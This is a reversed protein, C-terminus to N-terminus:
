NKDCTKWHMRSISKREKVTLTTGTGNGTIEGEVRCYYVGADRFRVDRIRFVGNAKSEVEFSKRPDQRAKYFEREGDKWWFIRIKSQDRVLPFSCYLSTDKGVLVEVKEPRQKVRAAEALATCVVALIFFTNFESKGFM